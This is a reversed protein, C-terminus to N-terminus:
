KKKGEKRIVFEDVYRIGKGKFPEPPRKSRIVSCFEGLKQKDPSSITLKTNGDMKVEIDNPIEIEVAHSLGLNLTLKNGSVAGRYGVGVIELNKTFGRTVGIMMNNILARTTGWNAKGKLTNDKNEVLINNDNIKLDVSDSIKMELLGKPGKFKLLNKEFLVEVNEQLNVPSQGIRSM